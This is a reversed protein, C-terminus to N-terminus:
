IDDGNEHQKSMTNRIRDEDTPNFFRNLYETLHGECINTLKVMQEVTLFYGNVYQYSTDSQKRLQLELIIPM